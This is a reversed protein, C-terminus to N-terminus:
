PEASLNEPTSVHMEAMKLWSQGHSILGQNSVAQNIFAFIGEKFRFIKMLVYLRSRFVVAIDHENKQIGILKLNVVWYANSLSFMFQKCYIKLDQVKILSGLAKTSICTNVGSFRLASGHTMLYSHEM